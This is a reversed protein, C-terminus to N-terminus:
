TFIENVTSAKARLFAGDHITTSLLAGVLSIEDVVLSATKMGIGDFDVFIQKIHCDAM